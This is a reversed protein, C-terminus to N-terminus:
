NWTGNLRHETEAEAETIDGSGVRFEIDDAISDRCGECSRCMDNPDVAGCDYRDDDHHHENTM